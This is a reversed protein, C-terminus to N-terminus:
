SIERECYVPKKAQWVVQFGLREYFRLLRRDPSQLRVRTSGLLLGYAEAVAISISVVNGRLPVDPPEPRREIHTLTITHRVGNEGPRSAQGLVLGCLDDGNWIALPLIAARQPQRAILAPWDWGGAGSRHTGSWTRRWTDLASRDIDALWLGIGAAGDAIAQARAEAYAQWRRARHREIAAKYSDPM